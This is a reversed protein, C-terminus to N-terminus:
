GRPRDLEAEEDSPRLILLSCGKELGSLDIPKQEEWGEVAQRVLEPEVEENTVGAGRIWGGRFM